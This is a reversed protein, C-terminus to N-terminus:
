GHTASQGCQCIPTAPYSCSSNPSPAAILSCSNGYSALHSCSYGNTDFPICSSSCSGATGCSTDRTTALGCSTFTPPNALYGSGQAASTGYGHVAPEARGGLFNCGGEQHAGGFKRAPLMNIAQCGGDGGRLHGCRKGPSNRRGGTRRCPALM